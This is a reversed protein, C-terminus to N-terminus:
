IAAWWIGRKIYSVMTGSVKYQRGLEACTAGAVLARKIARVQDATLKAGHREKRRMDALNDAQTGLFLHRPNCCARNDCRHCVCLAGPDAFALAYAVRHARLGRGRRGNADRLQGYGSLQRCGTWPWCEDPGRVDVHRWFREAPPVAMAAVPAM